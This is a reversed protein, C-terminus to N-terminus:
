RVRFGHKDWTQTARLSSRAHLRRIWRQDHTKPAVERQTGEARGWMWGHQSRKKNRGLSSMHFDWSERWEALLPYKSLESVNWTSQVFLQESSLTRMQRDPLTSNVRCSQPSYCILGRRTPPLMGKGGYISM